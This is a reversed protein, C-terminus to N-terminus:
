AACTRAPPPQTPRIWTRAGLRPCIPGNGLQGPRWLVRRQCEVRRRGSQSHDSM